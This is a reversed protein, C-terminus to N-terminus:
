HCVSLSLFLYVHLSLWARIGGTRTGGDDNRVVNNLADEVQQQTNKENLQFIPYPYENFWVAGIRTMDDAVDLMKVLDIVFQILRMWQGDQVSNSGDLIFVIDLQKDICVSVLVFYIDNTMTRASIMIM